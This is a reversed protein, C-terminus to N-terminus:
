SSLDALPCTRGDIAFTAGAAVWVDDLGGRPVEVAYQFPGDPPYLPCDPSDGCPEMDTMSVVRRDADFYAISLPMPTNRMWFGGTTESPYEFLMGDYGGLDTDTVDMLGRERQAADTAALLCIQCSAGAADTVTVAVEGFGALPRRGRREAAWGDGLKPQAAAASSGTSDTQGAGAPVSGQSPEADDSRTAWGIAIGSAVLVAVVIAAAVPGRRRPPTPDTPDTM